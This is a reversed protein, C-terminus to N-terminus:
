SSSLATDGVLDAVLADRVRRALFYSRAMKAASELLSLSVVWLLLRDLSFLPKVHLGNISPWSSHPSRGVRSTSAGDAAGKSVGTARLATM